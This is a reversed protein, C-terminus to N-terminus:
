ETVELAREVRPPREGLDDLATLIYDRVDANQEVALLELLPRVARSDQSWGLARASYQRVYNDDDKLADILGDVATEDVVWCMARAAYRRVFTNEDQLAVLLPQVAHPGGVWGLATAAHVRVDADEDMLLAILPDTAIEGYQILEMVVAKRVAPDTDILQEQLRVFEQSTRSPTFPPTTATGESQMLLARKLFHRANKYRPDISVIRQLDNIAQVLNPQDNILERMARFYLKEMEAIQSSPVASRRYPPFLGFARVLIFVVLLVLAAAQLPRTLVHAPAFASLALAAVASLLFLVTMLRRM